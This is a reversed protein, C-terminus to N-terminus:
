LVFTTLGCTLMRGDDGNLWARTYYKGQFSRTILITSFCQTTMAHCAKPNTKLVYVHNWFTIVKEICNFFFCVYQM